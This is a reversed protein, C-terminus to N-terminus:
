NYPLDTEDAVVNLMQEAIKQQRQQLKSDFNAAEREMKLLKTLIAKWSRFQVIIGEIVKTVIIKKKNALM